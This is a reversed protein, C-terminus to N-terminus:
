CMNHMTQRFRVVLGQVSCRRACGRLVHTAVYRYLASRQYRAVASCAPAVPGVAVSTCSPAPLTPKLSCTSASALIM